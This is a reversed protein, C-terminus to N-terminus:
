RKEFLVERDHRVYLIRSGDTSGILVGSGDSLRYAYIYIGSGIERDPMGLARIVQQITTEPGIFRFSEISWSSRAAIPAISAPLNSHRLATCGLLFAPIFIFCRFTM